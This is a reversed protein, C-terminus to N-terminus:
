LRNFQTRVEGTLSLLTHVMCINDSSYVGAADPGREWLTGIIGDVINANNDIKTSCFNAYFGCM